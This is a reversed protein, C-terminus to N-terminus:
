LDTAGLQVISQLWVESGAITRNSNEDVTFNDSFGRSTIVVVSNTGVTRFQAMCQPLHAPAEKTTSTKLFSEDVVRKADTAAWASTNTWNAHNRWDELDPNTVAAAPTLTGHV